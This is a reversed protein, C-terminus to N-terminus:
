LIAVSAREPAFSAEARKLFQFEDSSGPTVPRAQRKSAIEALNRQRLLEFLRAHRPGCTTPFRDLM